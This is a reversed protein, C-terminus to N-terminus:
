HQEQLFQDTNEKSTNSKKNNTEWLELWKEQKWIQKEWDTGPNLFGTGVLCKNGM